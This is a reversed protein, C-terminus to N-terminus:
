ETLPVHDVCTLATPIAELREIPIDKNCTSCKGYTGAEIAALAAEIKEVEQHTHEELALETTAIELDTAADAPHNDVGDIEEHVLTMNVEPRDQLEALEKELVKKFHALKNQNM